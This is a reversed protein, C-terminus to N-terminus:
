SLKGKCRLASFSGILGNVAGRFCLGYVARCGGFATETEREKIPLRSCCTSIADTGQRGFRGIHFGSAAETIYIAAAPGIAYLDDTLSM